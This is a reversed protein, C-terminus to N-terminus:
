WAFGMWQYIETALFGAKVMPDNACYSEVEALSSCNYICIGRLKSDTLFPGNVMLKGAQRLAFMHKLHQFQLSELLTSDNRDRTGLTLLVVYYFKGRSIEREIYEPSLSDM